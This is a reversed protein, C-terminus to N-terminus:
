GRYPVESKHIKVNQFGRSKLFMQLSTKSHEFDQTPGITISKLATRNIEHEIYPIVLDNRHRYKVANVDEEFTILRIEKEYMYAQHKHTIIPLSLLLFLDFSDKLCSECDCKKEVRNKREKFSSDKIRLSDM